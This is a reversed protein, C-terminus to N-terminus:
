LFKAVDALSNADQDTHAVAEASLQITAGFKVGGSTQEISKLLDGKMMGNVTGNPAANAFAAVPVLSLAWADQADSLPGIRSTLSPDPSAGKVKRDIAAHVSASDGAVAIRNDLFALVQ